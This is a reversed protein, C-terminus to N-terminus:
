FEMRTKPLLTEAWFLSLTSNIVQAEPSEWGRREGVHMESSQRPDATQTQQKVRDERQRLRVDLCYTQPVEGGKTVSLPVKRWFVKPIQIGGPLCLFSCGSNRRMEGRDLVEWLFCRLFDEQSKSNQGVLQWNELLTPPYSPMWGHPPMETYSIHPTLITPFYKNLFFVHFHYSSIVM